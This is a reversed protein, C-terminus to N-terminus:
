RWKGIVLQRHCFTISGEPQATALRALEHQLADLEAESHRSTVFPQKRWGLHNMLFM